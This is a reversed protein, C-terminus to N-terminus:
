SMSQPYRFKINYDIRHLENMATELIIEEMDDENMSTEMGTEEAMADSNKKAITLVRSQM